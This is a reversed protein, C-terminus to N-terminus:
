NVISNEGIAEWERADNENSPIEPYENIAPQLIVCIATSKTWPCLVLQKKAAVLLTCGWADYQWRSPGKQGKEEIRMKERTVHTMKM